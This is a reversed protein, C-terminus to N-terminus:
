FNYILQLAITRPRNIGGVETTGPALAGLFPYDFQFSVEEDTLNRGVLAVEWSDELAAVAVRLDVPTISDMPFTEGRHAYRDDIYSVNGDVILQLNSDFLQEQYHLALAGSWEPSHNLQNGTDSETADAYTASASIMLSPSVMWMSEFELGQSEAPITDVEFGIGNFQAVQFDDIETYFVAANLSLAGGAIVSKIGVESTDAEETDYESEDPSNVETSFGGSKTGRAWSAYIMAEDNLDFQFNISGDLNNEMRDMDTAPFLPRIIGVAPGPRAEVSAFVADKDERTWRLGLTTRFRETFSWTGLGFVSYVDTDQEYEKNSGGDIELISPPNTPQPIGIPPFPLSADTGDVLDLESHLYFLGAIYEFRGSTPSAIRLEQSFQEFDGDSSTNLYNGSIFDSDILRENDYQSWGSLATLVYDGFSHEYKLYARDTEQDDSADGDDGYATYATKNFDLGVEAGPELGPQGMFIPVSDGGIIGAEDKTIQFTDGQINLDDHEYAMTLLGNDGTNFVGTIRGSTQERVPVDNGTAHNKVYGEELVHNLALRIAGGPVPIDVAGAASYSGFEFEYDAQLYGGFEDGPKTTILSLAGLSTNKGLLSAQGGKIVEVRQIDFLASQFERQRGAYVGDVFLGVSQDFTESGAQTGVGRITINLLNHPAEQIVLGPVFNALDQTTRVNLETLMKGDLVNITVPIDQVNQVRKQSTVLVEELQQVEAGATLSLGSALLFFILSQPSDVLIPRPLLIKAM